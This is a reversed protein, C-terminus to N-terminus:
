IKPPPPLEPKTLPISFHFTTGQNEASEYWVKGSHREIIAKFTYLGLGTGDTTAKEANEARFFKEFLKSQQQVPIGIGNDKISFTIDNDNKIINIEVIGSNEPSYKISNDLLNQLALNIKEKDLPIIISEKSQPFIIKIHRKDAVLHRDVIIQNTLSIIDINEYNMDFKRGTEIHSVNLLDGVLKIMRENSEQIKILKDKQDDTLNTSGLLLEALWKIGTLPTRLQHSAVSVFESKSREIEKARTIDREICIFYKVNNNADLVPSIIINAEYEEGTKKTNKLEGVYVQKQDKITTWLKDYFDKDMKNGWMVDVKQGFVEEPEFGTIIKTTKNAYIVIGNADTIVFQESSNDAALKFKKLNEQSEWLNKFSQNITDTLTIIEQASKKDSAISPFNEKDLKKISEVLNIIPKIIQTNNVFFITVILALQILFLLILAKNRLNIAEQYLVEPTTIKILLTPKNYVDNIRLFGITQNQDNKIITWNQTQTLNNRAQVFDDTLVESYAKKTIKVLSSTQNESLLKETLHRGIILTGVSNLHNEDNTIPVVSIIIPDSQRLWVIGKKQHYLILRDTSKLITDLNFQNNDITNKQFVINKDSDLITFYNLDYHSLTQTDIIEIDKQDSNNELLTLINPDLSLDTATKILDDQINSLNIMLEQLNNRAINFQLTETEKKFSAQLFITSVLFFVTSSLLFIILLQKKLNM